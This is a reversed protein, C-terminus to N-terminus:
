GRDCALFSCSTSASSLLSCALQSAMPLKNHERQATSVEHHLHASISLFPGLDMLYMEESAIAYKRGRADEARRGEQRDAQRVPQVAQRGTRSQSRIREERGRVSIEREQKEQKKAGEGEEEGM